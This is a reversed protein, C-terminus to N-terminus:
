KSRDNTTTKFTSGCFRKRCHMGNGECARTRERTRIAARRPPGRRRGGSARTALSAGSAPRISPGEDIAPRQRGDSPAITTLTSSGIARGGLHHAASTEVM